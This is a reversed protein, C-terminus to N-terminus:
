MSVAHRLKNSFIVAHFAKKWRACAVIKAPLIKQVDGFPIKQYLDETDSDEDMDAEMEPMFDVTKNVKDVKSISGKIYYFNGDVRARVIDGVDFDDGATTMTCQNPQVDVVSDGFDLKVSDSMVDMVVGVQENYTVTDGINLIADTIEQKSDNANSSSSGGGMNKSTNLLLITTEQYNYRTCNKTNLSSGSM